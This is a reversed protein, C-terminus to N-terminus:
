KFTARLVNVFKNRLTVQKCRAALLRFLLISCFFASIEKSFIEIHIKAYGNPLFHM